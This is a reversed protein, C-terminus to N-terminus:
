NQRARQLMKRQLTNRWGRPNANIQRFLRKLFDIFERELGPRVPCRSLAAGAPLFADSCKARLEAAKPSMGLEIHAQVVAERATM